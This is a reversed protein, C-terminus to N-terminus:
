VAIQGTMQQLKLIVFEAPKLPAFGVVINVIGLNVDNQTTTERDCKVFYADRPTQGQFAGQRFLNNMFAGVNLRIQAWLPEDNPEFVVWKLGRYLSEEIYLALRRVPIYKYEDALQDAGRLTRAGWLVTGYVPFTRLCNIALPNLAGNQEDTLTYQPKRIGGLTADTGAPAKWVGRTVDTRAIIGAIIGCAAAHERDHGNRLPDSQTVRPFYLIANQTAPGELNLQDKLLRAPSSVLTDPTWGAPPDVILMARRRVCYAIAERYVDSAVDGGDADPPICLLNFLDVTDLVAALNATLDRATLMGGDSGGLFPMWGVSSLATAQPQARVYRSERQLVAEATRKAKGDAALHDFQELIQWNGEGEGPIGIKLLYCDPTSSRALTAWLANGWSGTDQAVLTLNGLEATAPAAHMAAGAPTTSRLANTLVEAPAPAVFPTKDLAAGLAEVIALGALRVVQHEHARADLEEQASKVLGEAKAQTACADALAAAKAERRAVASRYDTVLAADAPSLLLAAELQEAASKAGAWAAQATALGRTAQEVDAQKEQLAERAEELRGVAAALQKVRESDAVAIQEAPTATPAEAGEAPKRATDFAAIVAEVAREGVQREAPTFPAKSSTTKIPEGSGILRVVVAQGGGNLFFDQVAYSLPYDAHLGGFTREFDSYNFLKRPESVPGRVTRGLFATVSTAVGAITRVGSPVEEVYVGPYTPSVPM